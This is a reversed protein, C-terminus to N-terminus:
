TKGEGLSLNFMDKANTPAGAPRALRGTAARRLGGGRPDRSGPICTAGVWRRAEGIGLDLAGWAGRGSFIEHFFGLTARGPGGSGRRSFGPRVSNRPAYRRRDMQARSEPLLLAAGSGGDRTGSLEIGGASLLKRGGTRNRSSMAEFTHSQSLRTRALYALLQFDGRRKAPHVGCRRPPLAQTTLQAATTANGM